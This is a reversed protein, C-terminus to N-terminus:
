GASVVVQRSRQMRGTGLYASETVELVGGSMSLRWGAGSPLRLLAAAGNEIVAARVGPHLHFRLAFREGGPGDLIDEGRLADGDTSLRLTRRHLLRGTPRYGDHSM